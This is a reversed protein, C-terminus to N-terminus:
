PEIERNRLEWYEKEAIAGSIKEQLLRLRDELKIEELAICFASYASTDGDAVNRMARELDRLLSPSAGDKRFMEVTEAVEDESETVGPSCGFALFVGMIFAVVLILGADRFGEALRM